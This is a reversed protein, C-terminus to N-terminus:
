VKAQCVPLCNPSLNDGGLMLWARSVTLASVHLCLCIGFQGYQRLLAFRCVQITHSDSAQGLIELLVPDSVFFFRPFILRKKELYSVVFLFASCVNVCCHAAFAYLFLVGKRLLFSRLM